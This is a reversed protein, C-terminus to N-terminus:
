IGHQVIESLFVVGLSALVIFLALLLVMSVGLIIRM